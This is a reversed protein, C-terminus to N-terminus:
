GLSLEFAYLKLGGNLMLFNPANALLINDGENIKNGPTSM